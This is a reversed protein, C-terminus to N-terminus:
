FSFIDERVHLCTALKQLALLLSSFRAKRNLDIRRVGNERLVAINSVKGPAVAVSVHRRVFVMLTM